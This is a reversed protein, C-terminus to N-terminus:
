KIVEEIKLAGHMEEDYFSYGQGYWWVKFMIYAGYETRADVVPTNPIADQWKQEVKNWRKISYHKM